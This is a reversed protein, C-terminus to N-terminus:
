NHKDLFITIGELLDDLVDPPFTIGKRSPVFKDPDDKAPFYSRLDLMEKGMYRKVEIVLNEKYSKKITDLVLSDPYSDMDRAKEVASKLVSVFDEKLTFGKQSPKLKGGDEYQERICLYFKSKVETESVQVPITSKEFSFLENFNLDM